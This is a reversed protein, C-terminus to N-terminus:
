HVCQDAYASAHDQTHHCEHGPKLVCARCGSCCVGLCFIQILKCSIATWHSLTIGLAQQLIHM